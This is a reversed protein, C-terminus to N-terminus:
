LQPVSHGFTKNFLQYPQWNYELYIDATLNWRFKESLPSGAKLLTTHLLNQDQVETFIM